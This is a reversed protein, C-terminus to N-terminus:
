NNYRLWRKEAVLLNKGVRQVEGEEEGIRVGGGM